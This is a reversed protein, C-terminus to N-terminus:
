LIELLSMSNEFNAYYPYNIGNLETQQTIMTRAFNTPSQVPSWLYLIEGVM